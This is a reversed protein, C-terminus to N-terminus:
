ASAEARFIAKLSEHSGMDRWGFGGMVCYINDAKEMVAYDISIDPMRRYRSSLRGRRKLRRSIEPAHRDIAKLLAGAWFIFIGANWLYSKDKFLKEAKGPRPKEIFREVKLIGKNKGKSKKNKVKIYGFGTAPFTPKVGVTVFVDPENLVLEIGRRLAELYKNEDTIYHDTPLVMMVADKHRGELVSAALTIAPATNRPAPELLLNGRAIDPFDRRVLRSHRRNAVVIIRDPGILARIRDLTKKFMTTNGKFVPLFAKPRAATSLPRLRKGQGGVLVVAYVDSTVRELAM